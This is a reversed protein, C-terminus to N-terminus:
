WSSPWRSRSAFFENRFGFSDYSAVRSGPARAPRAHRVRPKAPKVPEVTKVEAAPEAAMAFAERPPKAVAAEAAVVAMPPVIAPLTTDFVVAKPWKHTSHIRITARDVDSRAPEASSAQFYWDTLFLLALLLSGTFLFYRGIPM